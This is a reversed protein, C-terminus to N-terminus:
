IKPVFRTEKLISKQSLNTLFSACGQEYLHACGKWWVSSDISMRGAESWISFTQALFSFETAFGPCVCPLHTAFCYCLDEFSTM